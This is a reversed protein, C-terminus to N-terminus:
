RTVTVKGTALLRRAIDTVFGALGDDALTCALTEVDEDSVPPVPPHAALYEALALLAHAESTLSEATDWPSIGRVHEGPGRADITPFTVMVEGPDGLVVPMVPPLSSAEIVIADAPVCRVGCETEVAALFDARAVGIHTGGEIEVYIGGTSYGAVRAQKGDLSESRIHTSM